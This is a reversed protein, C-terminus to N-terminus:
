ACVFVNDRYKLYKCSLMLAPRTVWAMYPIYGQMKINQRRLKGIVPKWWCIYFCEVCVGVTRAPSEWGMGKEGVIDRVLRLLM